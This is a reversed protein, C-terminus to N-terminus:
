QSSLTLRQLTAELEGLSALAEQNGESLNAQLDNLGREIDSWSERLVKPSSEFTKELDNALIGRYREVADPERGALIMARILELKASAEQIELYAHLTDSRDELLQAPTRPLLSRVYFFGWLALALLVLVLSVQVWRRNRLYVLRDMLRSFLPADPGLVPQTAPKHSAAKQM